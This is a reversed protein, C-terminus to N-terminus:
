LSPHHENTTTESVDSIPIRPLSSALTIIKEVLAAILAYVVLAFMSSIELVLSGVTQSQVLGTFPFLFLSTVGYIVAVLLSEPNAGILKLLIRLAILAELVSFLLLIIHTFRNSFFRRRRIGTNTKVYVTKTSKNSM